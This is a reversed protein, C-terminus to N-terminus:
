SNGYLEGHEYGTTLVCELQAADTLLDLRQGHYDAQRKPPIRVSGCVTQAENRRSMLRCFVLTIATGAKGKAPNWEAIATPLSEWWYSLAEGRELTKGYKRGFSWALAGHESLIGNITSGRVAGETALEQQGQAFWQDLSM